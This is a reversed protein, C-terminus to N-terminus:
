EFKALVKKVLDLQGDALSLLAEKTNADLPEYDDFGENSNDMDLVKIVAGIRRMALYFAETPLASLVPNVVVLQEPTYAQPLQEDTLPKAM